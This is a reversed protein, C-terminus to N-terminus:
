FPVQAVFTLSELMRVLQWFNEYEGKWCNTEEEEFLCDHRWRLMFSCINGGVVGPGVTSSSVSPAESYKRLLIRDRLSVIKDPIHVTESGKGATIKASIGGSQFRHGQETEQNGFRRMLARDAFTLGSNGAAYGIGIASQGVRHESSTDGELTKLGDLHEPVSPESRSRHYSFGDPRVADTVNPLITRSGLTGALAAGM